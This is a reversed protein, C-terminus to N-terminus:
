VWSTNRQLGLLRQPPDSGLEDQESLCRIVTDCSSRSEVETCSVCSPKSQGASMMVM